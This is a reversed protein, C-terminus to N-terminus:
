RGRMWDVTQRIGDPLATWPEWGAARAASVDLASAPLEGFRPAAMAPDDAVGCEKAIMTHLDRVTTEVGTGVNLRRGRAFGPELARVFADVVDDVFVYDRTSTGDGFIRARRGELCASTFMAVVGSEGYPDQRPGYVNSLALSTYDLGHLARYAGLYLEGAVKGAAYPSEPAVKARESVPLQSPTGYIAGGSSAFVVKRVGAAVASRLVNVSGLVNLRADYLPDAVSVRVDSQAALHCIVEARAAAVVDPLDDDTIDHRVFSFAGRRTENSRRADALNDLHGRSLDDLAVVEHGEALLRDVVNSGIFGAAGTVLVRM